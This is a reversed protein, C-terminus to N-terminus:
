RARRYRVFALWILGGCALLGAVRATQSGFVVTANFFMFALYSQCGVDWRRIWPSRSSTRVRDLALDLGWVLLTALNFWVGGGWNWGVALQTRRATDAQAASWSWDHVLGLSAVVHALLAVWGWMWFRQRWIARQPNGPLTRLVVALIYCGAAPWASWRAMSEPDM